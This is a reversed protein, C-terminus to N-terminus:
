ITRHPSSHYFGAFDPFDYFIIAVLHWMKLSFHVLNSEHCRDKQRKTRKHHRRCLKVSHTNTHLPPQPSLALQNSHLSLRQPHTKTDNGDVSVVWTWCVQVVAAVWGWPLIGQEHQSAEAVSTKIDVTFSSSVLQLASSCHSNQSRFDPFPVGGRPSPRPSDTGGITVANQIVQTTKKHLCLVANFISSAASWIDGCHHPSTLPSIPSPSTKPPQLSCPVSHMIAIFPIFSTFRSLFIETTKSSCKEPSQSSSSSM